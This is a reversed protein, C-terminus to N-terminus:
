SFNTTIFHLSVHDEIIYSILMPALFGSFNAFMNTIGMLTGAFNPAIDIHNCNISNFQFGNFGVTLCLLVVVLVKDCGAYKIGLLCIAPIVFATFFFLFIM